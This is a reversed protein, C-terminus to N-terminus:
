RSLRDRLRNTRVDGKGLVASSMEIAHSLLERELQRDRQEGAKAIEADLLDLLYGVATKTTVDKDGRSSRLLSVAPDLWGMAEAHRGQQAYLHGLAATRVAVEPSQQGFLRTEADLAELMLGEAEEARRRKFHLEAWLSLRQPLQPHPDGLRRTQDVSQKVHRFGEEDLRVRILAAGLAFSGGAIREADGSAQAAAFLDRYLGESELYRQQSDLLRALHEARAVVSPHTPGRRERVLRYSEQLLTTGEEREGQQLRVQALQSAVLGLSQPALAKRIAYARQFAAGAEDAQGRRLHAVGLNGAVVAVHMGQDNGFGQMATQLMSLAEDGRGGRDALAGLAGLEVLSAPHQEGHRAVRIRLIGRTLAIAQRLHGQRAQHDRARELLREGVSRDGDAVVDFAADPLGELVQAWSTLQGASLVSVGEDGFLSAIATAAQDRTM